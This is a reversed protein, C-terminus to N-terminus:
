VVDEAPPARLAREALVDIEQMVSQLLEPASTEWERIAEGRELADTRQYVWLSMLNRLEILTDGVLRVERAAELRTAQLQEATEQAQMIAHDAVNCVRQLYGYRLACFRGIILVPIGVGFAAMNFYDKRFYAMAVEACYGAAVLVTTTDLLRSLCTAEPQLIGAPQGM